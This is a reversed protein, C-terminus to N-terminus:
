PWSRHVTLLRILVNTVMAMDCPFPTAHVRAPRTFAVRILVALLGVPGPPLDTVIVAPDDLVQDVVLAPRVLQGLTATVGPQIGSVTTLRRDPHGLGPTRSAAGEIVPDRLHPPFTAVPWRLPLLAHAALPVANMHFRTCGSVGQVKRDILVGCIGEHVQEIIVITGHRRTGTHPFRGDAHPGGIGPFRGAGARNEDLLEGVLGTHRIPWGDPHINDPLVHQLGFIHARGQRLQNGTGLRGFDQTYRRLAEPLESVPM